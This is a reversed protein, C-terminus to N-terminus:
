KDESKSDEANEKELSYRFGNEECWQIAFKTEETNCYKEWDDCMHYDDLFLAFEHCFYSSGKLTFLRNIEEKIAIDDQHQNSVIRLFQKRLKLLRKKSEPLPMLNDLAGEQFCQAPIFYPEGNVPDINIDTNFSYAPKHIFSRFEDGQLCVKPVHMFMGTSLSLYGGIHMSLILQKVSIITPLNGHSKSMMEVFRWAM